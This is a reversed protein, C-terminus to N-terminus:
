EAFADVIDLALQSRGPHAQGVCAADSPPLQDVLAAALLNLGIQVLEIRLQAFGPPTSRGQRVLGQSRSETEEPRVVHGARARVARVVRGAPTPAAQTM